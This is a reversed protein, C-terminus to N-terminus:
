CCSRVEVELFYGLVTITTEITQPDILGGQGVVGFLIVWEQEDRTIQLPMAAGNYLLKM